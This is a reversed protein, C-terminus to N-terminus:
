KRPVKVKVTAKKEVSGHAPKSEPEHWRLSVNLHDALLKIAEKVPMKRTPQEYLFYMMWDRGTRPVEGKVEIYTEAELKSFRTLVDEAGTEIQEVRRVLDDFDTRKIWM